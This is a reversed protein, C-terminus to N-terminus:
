EVRFDTVVLRAPGTAFVGHGLGDGGGLVFGIRGADAMAGTFGDPNSAVSSKLIATWNQVFSAELVYEGVAGLFVTVFSAYWRYAEMAGQASWDDGNRQFYLTLLAPSDPSHVPCLKVGDAMQLRCRLTIKKKGALSGTPVTLYHVHGAEASPQPIDIYWGEAHPWPHLPMNLSPNDGNMNPGIEWAAPDMINAPVPDEPAASTQGGGRTVLFVLFLLVAIGAITEITM